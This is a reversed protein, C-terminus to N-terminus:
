IRFTFLLVRLSFSRIKVGYAYFHINERDGNLKVPSNRKKYGEIISCIIWQKENDKLWLLQNGKEVIENM